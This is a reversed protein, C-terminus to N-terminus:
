KINDFCHFVKDGKPFKMFLFFKCQELMDLSFFKERPILEGQVNLFNKDFRRLVSRLAAHKGM